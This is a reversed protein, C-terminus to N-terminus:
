KRRPHNIPLRSVIQLNQLPRLHNREIVIIKRVVVIKPHQTKKQQNKRM